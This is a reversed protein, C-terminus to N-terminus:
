ERANTFVGHSGYSYRSLYTNPNPNPLLQLIHSHEGRSANGRPFQPGSAITCKNKGLYINGPLEGWQIWFSDISKNSM